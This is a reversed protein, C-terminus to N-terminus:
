RRLAAARERLVARDVKGNALTPLEAVLELVGPLEYPALRQALFELLGGADTTSRKKLEVFAVIEEDGTREGRVVAALAVDPHACLAAEVGAPYVTYGSRKISEKARGTIFAAGSPDLYAIDSTHFWGDATLVARTAEPARYYGLFLSPSRVLIEGPQGAAVDVGDTDVIRVSVGPVACGVSTDSRPHDIDVQFVMGAETCGYANQFPCGYLDEVARKLAADLPSSSTTVLRVRGRVFESPNDRVWELFKRHLPPLGPVVSIGDDRIARALGRPAFRPALYLCAGSAVVVLLIGLASVHALPLACFTKDHHTYRRVRQQTRAFFVLYRHSLLAVKPTGTTGSTCIM